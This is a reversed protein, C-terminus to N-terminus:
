FTKPFRKTKIHYYSFIFLSPYIYLPIFELIVLRCFRKSYACSRGPLPALIQDAGFPWGLSVLPHDVLDSLRSDIETSTYHKGRTKIGRHPTITNLRTQSRTFKSLFPNHIIISLFRCPFLKILSNYCSQLILFVLFTYFRFVRVNM